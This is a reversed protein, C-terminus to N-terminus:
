GVAKLLRLGPWWANSKYLSFQGWQCGRKPEFNIAIFDESTIIGAVRTHPELKHWNGIILGQKRVRDEKLKLTWVPCDYLALTDGPLCMQDEM